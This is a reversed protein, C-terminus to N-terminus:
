VLKAQCYCSLLMAATEFKSSLVSTGFELLVFWGDLSFAVFNRHKFM